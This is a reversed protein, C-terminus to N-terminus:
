WGHDSARRNNCQDCQPVLLPVARNHVTGGGKGGDLPNTTTIADTHAVGYDVKEGARWAMCCETKCVQSAGRGKSGVPADGSPAHVGAAGGLVLVNGHHNHVLAWLARGAIHVEGDGGVPVDCTPPQLLLLCQHMWPPPSRGGRRHAAGEQPNCPQMCAKRQAARISRRSATDNARSVGCGGFAAGPM